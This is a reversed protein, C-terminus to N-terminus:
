LSEKTIIFGELIFFQILYESVSHTINGSVTFFTSQQLFYYINFNKSDNVKTPQPVLLTYLYSCM